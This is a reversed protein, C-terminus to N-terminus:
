QIQYGSLKPIYFSFFFFRSIHLNRKYNEYQRKTLIWGELYFLSRKMEILDLINSEITAKHVM